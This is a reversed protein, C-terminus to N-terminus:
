RKWKKHLEEEQVREYEYKEMFPKMKTIKKQLEINEREVKLLEADKKNLIEAKEVKIDELQNELHKVKTHLSQEKLFTEKRLM